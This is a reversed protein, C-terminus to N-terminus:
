TLGLKMGLKIHLNGHEPLTLGMLACYKKIHAPAVYHEVFYAINKGNNDMASTNAGADVLLKTIAFHGRTISFMLPTQGRFNPVDVKAKADILAQVIETQGNETARGIPTFLQYDESEKDAGAQLLAKVEAENGHIAAMMLASCGQVKHDVQAGAQLSAHLLALKGNKAAYYLADQVSGYEGALQKQLQLACASILRHHLSCSSTM